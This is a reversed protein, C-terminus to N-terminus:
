KTVTEKSEWPYPIAKLREIHDLMSRQSVTDGAAAAEDAFRQLEALSDEHENRMVDWLAQIHREVSM